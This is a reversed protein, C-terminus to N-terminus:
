DELAPWVYGPGAMEDLINPQRLQRQIVPDTEFPLLTDDAGLADLVPCVKGPFEEDILM